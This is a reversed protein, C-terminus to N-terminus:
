FSVEKRFLILFFFFFDGVKIGSGSEILEELRNKEDEIKQIESKAANLAATAKQLAPSMNADGVDPDEPSEKIFDRTNTKYHWMLFELFSVKGDFSLDAEKLKARAELVTM